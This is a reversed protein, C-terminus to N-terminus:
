PGYSKGSKKFTASYDTLYIKGFATGPLAGFMRIEVAELHQEPLDDRHASTAVFLTNGQVTLEDGEEITLLDAEPISLELTHILGASLKRDSSKRDLYPLGQHRIIRIRNSGDRKIKLDRVKMSLELRRRDVVPKTKERLVDTLKNVADRTHRTEYHAANKELSLLVRNLDLRKLPEASVTCVLGLCLATTFSKM